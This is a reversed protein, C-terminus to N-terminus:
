KVVQVAMAEMAAKPSRFLAIKQRFLPNKDSKKLTVNKELREM